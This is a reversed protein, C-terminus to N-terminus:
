RGPGAIRCPKLTFRFLTMLYRNIATCGAATTFAPDIMKFIVIEVHRIDRDIIDVFEFELEVNRWFACRAM